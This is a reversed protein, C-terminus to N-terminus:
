PEWVRLGLRSARFSDCSSQRSSISDPGVGEKRRFLVLCGELPEDRTFLLHERILVGDELAM